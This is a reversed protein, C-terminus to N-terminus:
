EEDTGRAGYNVVRIGMDCYHLHINSRTEPVMAEKTMKRPCTIKNNPGLCRKGNLWNDKSDYHNFDRLSSMDHLDMVGYHHCGYGHICKHAKGGRRAMAKKAKESVMNDNKQRPRTVHLSVSSNQKKKGQKQQSSVRGLKKITKPKDITETTTASCKTGSVLDKQESWKRCKLEVIRKRKKNIEEKGKQAELRLL